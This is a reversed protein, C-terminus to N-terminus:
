SYHESGQVGVPLTAWELASYCIGVLGQNTLPNLFHSRPRLGDDETEGGDSLWLYVEKNNIKEDYGNQMSLQNILYDNLSFGSFNNKAIYENISRHTKVELAYSYNVFFLIFLLLINIISTTKKWIKIM